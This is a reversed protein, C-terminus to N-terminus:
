QGASKKTRKGSKAHGAGQRQKHKPDRKCYVYNVNERRVIYCSECFKKISARVKM